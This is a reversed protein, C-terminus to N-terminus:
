RHGRVRFWREACGKHVRGLDQKCRCGLDIADATASSTACVRCQPGSDSEQRHPSTSASDSGPQLVTKTEVKGMDLDQHFSSNAQDSFGTSINHNQGNAEEAKPGSSDWGKLPPPCGSDGPIDEKASKVDNALQGGGTQEKVHNSGSQLPNPVEKDIVITVSAEKRPGANVLLVLAPQEKVHGSGSHLLIPNQGSDKDLTVSGEKKPEKGANDM